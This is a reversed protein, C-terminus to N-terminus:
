GGTRCAAADPPDAAGYSARALSVTGNARIILVYLGAYEPDCLDPMRPGGLAAIIAPITNSHGVVLV